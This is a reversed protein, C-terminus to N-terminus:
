RRDSIVEVTQASDVASESSPSPGDGNGEEDNRPGSVSKDETAKSKGELVESRLDSKEAIDTM